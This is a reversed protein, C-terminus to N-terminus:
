GIGGTQELVSQPKPIPLFVQGGCEHITSIFDALTTGAPIFVKKQQYSASRLWAIAGANIDEVSFPSNSHGDCPQDLNARFAVSKIEWYPKESNARWEYPEEANHEYPADNWDDGWQESVEQTTFFAWDGSVYCLKFDQHTFTM